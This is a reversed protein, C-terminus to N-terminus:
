GVGDVPLGAEALARRRSMEAVVLVIVGAVVAGIVAGILDSGVPAGLSVNDIGQDGVPWPWLVRLSGVMVGVLVALVTDRHNRLLWHLLTSFSALGVVAGVGFAAIVALDRDDVAATVHDYLGLMLLIFSGSVGPLIMACIALAGAAFVVPLPPNDVAGSRLGLVFFAVVTSGMLVLARLRDKERIEGWAVRASAAVLGFFVASVMVPNNEIQSRLWGVLTVVALGIGGLLALLFVWDIARLRDWGPGLRGRILLSLAAAGERIQEILYEYIGFLLAVTGGSVGPVIDAAGMAFGRGIQALIKRPVLSSPVPEIRAQQKLQENLLDDM